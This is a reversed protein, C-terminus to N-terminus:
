ISHGLYERDTPHKQILEQCVMSWGLHFSSSYVKNCGLAFVVLITPFVHSYVQNKPVMLNPIISIYPQLEGEKPEIIEDNKKIEPISGVSGVGGPRKLVLPACGVPCSSYYVGSLVAGEHVHIAHHAGKGRQVAAWLDMSFEGSNNSLQHAITTANLAHLYHICANIVKNELQHVQNCNAISPIAHKYGHTRQYEFFHDNSTSKTSESSGLDNENIYVPRKQRRRRGTSGDSQETNLYNSNSNSNTFKDFASVAVGTLVNNFLADVSGSNLLNTTLIPATGNWLRHLEYPSMAGLSRVM